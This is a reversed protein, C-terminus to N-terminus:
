EEGDDSFRYLKATLRIYTHREDDTLHSMVASFFEQVGDLMSQYLENGKDTLLVYTNRRDNQDTRRLVYGKEEMGRLLRSIGSIPMDNLEALESVYIKKNEKECKKIVALTEFEYKQPKHLFAKHLKKQEFTMKLILNESFQNTM